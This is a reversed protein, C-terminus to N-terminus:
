SCGKITLLLGFAVAWVFGIPIAWFLKFIFGFDYDGQPQYPKLLMFLFIITALIAIGIIVASLM